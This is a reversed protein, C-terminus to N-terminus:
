KLRMRLLSGSRRWFRLDPHKALVEQAIADQCSLINKIRYTNMQPRQLRASYNGRATGEIAPLLAIIATV